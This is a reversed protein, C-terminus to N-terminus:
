GSNRRVWYVYMGCVYVCMTLMKKEFTYWEGISMIDLLETHSTVYEETVGAVYIGKVKDERITLNVQHHYVLPPMPTIYSCYITSM